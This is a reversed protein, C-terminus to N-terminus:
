KKAQQKLMQTIVQRADAIERAAVRLGYFTQHANNSPLSKLHSGLNLIVATNLLGDNKAVWQDVTPAPSPAHAANAAPSVVTRPNITAKAAAIDSQVWRKIDFDSISDATKQAGAIDGAKVQAKAIAWQARSKQTDGKISDATKQAGILDGAISQAKVTAVEQTFEEQGGRMRDLIGQLFQKNIGAQLGNAIEQAGAIDGAAIQAHGIKSQLIDKLDGALVSGATAQAGAIDGSEAQLQGIQFRLHNRIGAAQISDATKQAGVIEGAKIQANAIHEKVIEKHVGEQMSNASKQAGVIDGAKAQAEAIAGQAYNKTEVDQINAATKIAGMIDGSKAQASAIRNLAGNKFDSRLRDATTKAGAIDGTDAQVGLIKSQAQGKMGENQIGAATQFATELDGSRAWLEAVEGLSDQRDFNAADGFQKAADEAGRILRSLSGQNKVDLEKIQQKVAAVNAAGPSAELYAGFWTMARLERGPIKSEALGLNFFLIPAAPAIKRADQFLRIALLYEQQQAAIIGKELAEQAAPPLEAPANAQALAAFPQALSLFALWILLYLRPAPVPKMM